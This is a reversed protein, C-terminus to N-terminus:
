VQYNLPENSLTLGNVEVGFSKYADLSYLLVDAFGRPFRKSYSM